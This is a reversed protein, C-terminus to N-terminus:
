LGLRKNLETRYSNFGIDREYQIQALFEKKWKIKKKEPEAKRIAQKIASVLKLTDGKDAGRLSEFDGAFIIHAIEEQLEKEFETKDPM